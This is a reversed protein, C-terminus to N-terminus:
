RPITTRASYQRPINKIASGAENTNAATRDGDGTPELDHEAPSKGTADTTKAARKTTGSPIRDGIAM